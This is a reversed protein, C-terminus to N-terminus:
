SGPSPEGILVGDDQALIAQHLRRLGRGPELGTEAALRRRICHFVELAEVQMGARYLALMMQESFREREPYAGTLQRLEAILDRHEGVALRSTILDERACLRREELFASELRCRPLDRVNLLAPGRWLGLATRLLESAQDPDQTVLDTGRDALEVFVHADVQQAPLDLLYGSGVTRVLEDGRRDTIAQLLRRLRNINAQLANRVNRVPKNAWLEEILQGSSVPVGPSLALVALITGVKTQTIEHVQRGTAITLSGLINIRM